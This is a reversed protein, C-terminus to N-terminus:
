TKLTYLLINMSSSKGIEPVEVYFSKRFPQYDTAAHDVKALERKQKNAIGAATEHLNEGEEESSYELGDQNQEILEGKQKAVQKKAVGTVIVVGGSQPNGSNTGNNTSKSRNPDYKNVKRVEEQVQFILQTIIFVTLVICIFEVIIQSAEAMFADLPDVEEEQVKVEEPVIEVEEKIDDEDKIEKTANLIVPIEEDSDDELSWKKMPLQLNALISSKGDKKTAELEKKKREARWREIRERRKQM